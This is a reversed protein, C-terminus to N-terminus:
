KAQETIAISSFFQQFISINRQFENDAANENQAVAQCWTILQGKPWFTYYSRVRYVFGQPVQFIFDASFSPISKGLTAPRSNILRFGQASALEHHIAFLMEPGSKNVFLDRRQKENMRVADPALKASLPQQTTHCYALANGVQKGYFMHLIGGGPAANQKYKWDAPHELTYSDIKFNSYSSLRTEGSAAQSSVLVNGLILCTFLLFQKKM